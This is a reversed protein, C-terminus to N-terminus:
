TGSSDHRPSNGIGCVTPEAVGPMTAIEDATLGGFFKPEVVQSKRPDLAVLDAGRKPSWDLHEGLAFFHPRGAVCRGVILWGSPHRM